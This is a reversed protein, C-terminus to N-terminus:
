EDLLPLFFAAAYEVAEPLTFLEIAEPDKSQWSAAAQADKLFVMETCLSHAASTSFKQWRIGVRIEPSPRTQVIQRGKQCIYIPEGTAHCKSDICTEVGFMLGIALADVACMAYIEQGAPGGVRLKHPTTETTMPYAGLIKADPDQLKLTHAKEDKVVPSSLVVLDNSGLVALAQMASERSGLLAGIENTTLPKGREALSRLILRHVHALPKPLAQQRKKLPLLENLRKLAVFLDARTTAGAALLAETVPAM